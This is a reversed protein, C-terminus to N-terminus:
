VVVVVVVIVVVTHTFANVTDHNTTKEQWLHQCCKTQDTPRKPPQNIPKLRKGWWLKTTLRIELKEMNRICVRLKVCTCTQAGRHQWGQWVVQRQQAATILQPLLLMCSHRQHWRLTKTAANKCIYRCLPIYMYIFISNHQWKQQLKYSTPTQHSKISWIASKWVRVCVRVCKYRVTCQCRMHIATM